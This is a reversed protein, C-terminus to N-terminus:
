RESWVNLTGASTLGAISQDGLKSVFYLDTFFYLTQVLIGVAMQLSMEAIHRPLSGTSLDKM